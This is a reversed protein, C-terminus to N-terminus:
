NKAADQVAKILDAGIEAEFEKYVPSMAEFWEDRNIETVEMGLKVLEARFETDQRNLETRQFTQAEKAAERFITQQEPTLRDWVIKSVIVPAAAYFHNSMTLYKQVENYKNNYINAIPNEQGDVTGQQMATFLEGFAMPIASVGIAQFSAMHIKNEMTRIKLGRADSPKTVARKSNTLQRFGNEFYVLGVLGIKDLDNLPAQGLPGDVVRHATPNDPFIFPLDFVMFSKVFGMLPATSVLSIDLTGMQLGEIMDRENGLQSSHFVEISIEGNTRAKVIEAFKELGTQYPHDPALVHGAKLKMEAMAAAASFVMMVAVAVAMIKTIGNVKKSM